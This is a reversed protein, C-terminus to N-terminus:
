SAWLVLMQETMERCQQRVFEITRYSGHRQTNTMEPIWDSSHGCDFGITAKHPLELSTYTTGGHVIITEEFFREDLLRDLRALWTPPLEFTIYGCLNGMGNRKVSCEFGLYDFTEEDPEDVWPLALCQLCTVELTSAALQERPRVGRDHCWPHGLANAYHGLGADEVRRDRSFQM